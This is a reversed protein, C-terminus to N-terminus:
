FGCNFDHIQFHSQSKRESISMRSEGMPHLLRESSDDLFKQLILVILPENKWKKLRCSLTGLYVLSSLYKMEGSMSGPWCAPETLLALLIGRGM